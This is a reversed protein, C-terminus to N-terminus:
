RKIRLIQCATRFNNTITDLHEYNSGCFIDWLPLYTDPTDGCFMGISIWGRNKHNGVLQGGCITFKYDMGQFQLLRDCFDDVSAYNPM